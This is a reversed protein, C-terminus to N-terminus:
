GTDLGICVTKTAAANSDSEAQPSCKRPCSVLSAWNANWLM